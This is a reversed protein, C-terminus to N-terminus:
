LEYPKWVQEIFSPLPVSLFAALHPLVDFIVDDFMM